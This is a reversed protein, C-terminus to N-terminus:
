TKNSTIKIHKNLKKEFFYFKATISLQKQQIIQRTTEIIAPRMLGLIHCCKICECTKCM